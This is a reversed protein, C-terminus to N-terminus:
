QERAQELLLMLTILTKVNRFIKITLVLIILTFLAVNKNWFHTEFQYSKANVPVSSTARLKLFTPSGAISASSAPCASLSSM